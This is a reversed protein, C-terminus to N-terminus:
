IELFFTKDILKIVAATETYGHGWTVEVTYIRHWREIEQEHIKFGFSKPLESGFCKEWILEKREDIAKTLDRAIYDLNGLTLSSKQLRLGFKKGVPMPVFTNRSRLIRRLPELLGRRIFVNRAVPIKTPRHDVTVVGDQVTVLLIWGLCGVPANLSGRHLRDEKLYTTKGLQELFELSAEFQVRTPTSKFVQGIQNQKFYETADEVSHLPKRGAKIERQIGMLAYCAGAWLMGLEELVIPRSANAVDIRRTNMIAHVGQEFTPGSANSESNTDM